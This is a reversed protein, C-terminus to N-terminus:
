LAGVAFVAFVSLKKKIALQLQWLAWAPVIIAEVDSIINVIAMAIITAKWDICYGQLMPDRLKERPWCTFIYLFLLVTYAVANAVLSFMIVWYVSGKVRTTFIKKMQLFITTKAFGGSVTYCIWIVNYRYSGNLVTAVDVDWIHRAMGHFSNYVSLATEAIFFAWAVYVFADEWDLKRTWANVYVRVLIFLLTFVHIIVTSAIVATLLTPPNVFNPQVDPPPQGAPIKSLDPMESSM